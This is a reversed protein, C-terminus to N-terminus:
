RKRSKKVTKKATTRKAVSKGPRKKTAKALSKSARPSKKASKVTKKATGKKPAKKATKKVAVKKSSKKATKKAVVKKPAKKAAKRATVKATKKAVKAAKKAAVKASKKAVKAARKAVKKGTKKTAKAASAPAAASPKKAVVKKLTRKTVKKAAKKANTSAVAPATEKSAPAASKAAGKAPAPPTPTVAPLLEAWEKDGDYLAIGAILVQRAVTVDEARPGDGIGPVELILPLDRILPQGILTALGRTGITGEGINAHRDRNGGLEIKSDNLHFCRLRNIGVSMEIEQVLRGAGAESSYDFGSAWLHQTDICLGLRDDNNCAEIMMHIEELTRGVPGDAGAANEILIPCEAVGEPSPDAEVFAREFADAIQRVVTDFGAGQHSGVHLVLGSSGIGRAVSLNHILCAVSKDYLDRDATALNILYTAHCFTDTITPHIAAAERYAALVEPAYQSPKWMRPSQTFIQISTAGMEVGLELSPVLKGGGRVHAGINM